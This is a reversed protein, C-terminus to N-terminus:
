RTTEEVRKSIKWALEEVGAIFETVNIKGQKSGYCHLMLAEADNQILLLALTLQHECCRAM